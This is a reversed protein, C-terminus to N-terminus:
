RRVEIFSLRINTKKVLATMLLPAEIASISERRFKELERIRKEIVVTTKKSEASPQILTIRDKPVKKHYVPKPPKNRLPAENEFNIDIKIVSKDYQSMETSLM